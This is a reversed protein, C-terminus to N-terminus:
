TGGQDADGEDSTLAQGASTRGTRDPLGNALTIADGQGNKREGFWSIIRSETDRSTFYPQQIPFSNWFPSHM